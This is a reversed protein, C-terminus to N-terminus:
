NLNLHQLICTDDEEDLWYLYLDPQGPYRIFYGAKCEFDM